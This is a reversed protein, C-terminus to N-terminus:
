QFLKKLKPEDPKKEAAPAPAPAPEPAPATIAEPPIGADAFEMVGADTPVAEKCGLFTFVIASGSEDRDDQWAVGFGDGAFALSPRGCTFPNDDSVRLTRGITVGQGDLRSFFVASGMGEVSGVWAIGYESGAAAIAVHDASGNFELQRTLLPRDGREGVAAFFIRYRDRPNEQEPAANTWVVAFGDRTAAIEPNRSVGSTGSVVIAIGLRAGKNSLRQLMIQRGGAASSSWVVAFQSGNWAIRPEEIGGSYLVTPPPAMGDVGFYLVGKEVWAVSGRPGAAASSAKKTIKAPLDAEERWRMSKVAGRDMWVVHTERSDVAITQDRSAGDHPPTLPDSLKAGTKDVRVASVAPFQGHMDWWAIGFAKGDFAVTPSSAENIAATLVVNAGLQPDPCGDGEVVVPDPPPAAEEVPQRTGCAASLGLVLWGAKTWSGIRM